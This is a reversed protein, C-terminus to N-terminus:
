RLGRWPAAGARGGGAPGGPGPGGSLAEGADKRTLWAEGSKGRAYRKALADFEAKGKSAKALLEGTKMRVADRNKAGFPLVIRSVLRQEESRFRDPNAEHFAKIEAEPPQIERGFREPSFVAVVLKVRARLHFTEKALEDKAVNEGEDPGGTRAREPDATVVLLRIKRSAVRFLEKAETEPVLAGAALPGEVKKLTIEVRKSAEFEAIGVRNYYLVSRYREERFQGDQQFAPIAAIERQVEEDTASLGMKAAEALLIKRQVLSDMAQKKLDLAKAMEPTFAPGYVERYTKELGSVAEALENLTITEDGVTAAVNRDRESYTGVGWWIFTLAIFSLIIKIAWSGANRRLVDLMAHRNEQRHPHIHHRVHCELAARPGIEVPNRGTGRRIDFSKLFTGQNPENSIDGKARPGGTAMPGRNAFQRSRAVSPKPASSLCVAAEEARGRAATEREETRLEAAPKQVMAAGNRRAPHPGHRPKKTQAPPPQRQHDPVLPQQAAPHLRESRVTKGGPLLDGGPKRRGCDAPACRRSRRSSRCLPPQPEGRFWKPAAHQGGPDNQNGSPRAGKPVPGPLRWAQAGGPGQGPALPGHHDPDGAQSLGARLGYPTRRGGPGGGPHAGPPLPLDHAQRHLLGAEPHDTGFWRHLSGDLQVLEGFRAKRERYSRHKVKLSSGAWLQEQILWRRLTEHHLVVGEEALKECALTPGFGQYRERYRAIAKEQVAAPKARNSPRGRGRHMLGEDGERLYRTYIRKGQRYSISLRASAERITLRGEKVGELIVKRLREKGSMLLHGGMAGEASIDCLPM